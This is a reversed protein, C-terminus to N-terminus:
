SLYESWIQLTGQQKDGQRLNSGVVTTATDSMDRVLYPANVVNRYIGKKTARGGARTRHRGAFLNLSLAVASATSVVHSRYNCNGQPAKIRAFCIPRYKIFISRFQGDVYVLRASTRALRLLEM